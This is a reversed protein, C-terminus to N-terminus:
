IADRPGCTHNKMLWYDHIVGATVKLDSAKVPKVLYSNAGLEYARAVDKPDSSSTLVVIPLPKHEPSGKIRSLVAWGDLKRLKLDLLICAPYSERIDGPNEADEFLDLADQGDSVLDIHLGPDIKTFARKLLAADAPEDEVILVKTHHM